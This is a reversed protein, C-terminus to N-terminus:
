RKGASLDYPAMLYWYADRYQDNHEKTKRLVESYPPLNERIFSESYPPKFSEATEQVISNYEPEGVYHDIKTLLLKSAWLIAQQENSPMIHMNQVEVTDFDGYGNISPKGIKFSKSFSRIENVTLGKAEILLVETDGVMKLPGFGSLIQELIDFRKIDEPPKLSIEKKETLKLSVGGDTTLRISIRPNSSTKLVYGMHGFDEIVVTRLDSLALDIPKKLDGGLIEIIREPLTADSGNIRSEDERSELPQIDLIKYQLLPDDSLVVRYIGKKPIPIEGREVADKGVPTLEFRGEKKEKILGYEEVAGLVNQGYPSDPPMFLLENNVTEMTIQDSANFLKLVALIEDHADFEKVTLMMAITQTDIRRSLIVETRGKM